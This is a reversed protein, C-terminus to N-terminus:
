RTGGVVIDLMGRVNERPLVEMSEWFWGPWLKANDGSTFKSLIMSDVAFTVSADDPARTSRGAQQVMKLVARCDRYGPHAAEIAQVVPDTREWPMKAIIQVRCDDYPFDVGTDVAPSVLVAGDGAALYRAVGDAARGRGHNIIRARHASHAALLDAQPYSNVHIITKVKPTEDLIRDILVIWQRFSKGSTDKWTHYNLWPAGSILAFPRQEAPIAPEAEIVTLQDAPIGLTRATQENITASMLLIKPVGKWLHQECSGSTLTTDVLRHNEPDWVFGTSTEAAILKKVKELEAKLRKRRTPRGYTPAGDTENTASEDPPTHAILYILKNAATRAAEAAEELTDASLFDTRVRQSRLFAVSRRGWETSQAKILLDVVAHAEDCVALDFQGFLPERPGTQDRQALMYYAYNALMFPGHEAERRADYYDCGANRLECETRAWRAMGRAKDHCPGRDCTPEWYQDSREDCDPADCGALKLIQCPYNRMGKIEAMMPFDVRYQNQLMKTSTLFVSRAGGTDRERDRVAEAVHAAIVSKGAGTPASLMVFRTPAALIRDVVDQQGPRFEPFKSTLRAQIFAM